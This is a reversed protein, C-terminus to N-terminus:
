EESNYKDIKIVASYSTSDTNKTEVYQVPLDQNILYDLKIWKEYIKAENELCKICNYENDCILSPDKDCRYYKFQSM